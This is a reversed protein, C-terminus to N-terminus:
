NTGKVTVDPKTNSHPAVMVPQDQTGLKEQCIAVNYTGPPLGTLLYAGGNDSVASRRIGKQADEAVVNAKPLVGGSADTVTGRIGSAAGQAHAASLLGLLVLLCGLGLSASRFWASASRMLMPAGLIQDVIVLKMWNQNPRAM